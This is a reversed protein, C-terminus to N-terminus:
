ALEEIKEKSYLYCDKDKLINRLINIKHMYVVKGDKLNKNKNACRLFISTTMGIIISYIIMLIANTIVPNKSNASNYIIGGIYCLTTIICIAIYLKQLRTVGKRSHRAYEKEDQFYESIIFWIM